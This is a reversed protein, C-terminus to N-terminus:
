GYFVEVTVDMRIDELGGGLADPIFILARQRHQIVVDRIKVVVPAVLENFKFEVGWFFGCSFILLVKVKLEIQM